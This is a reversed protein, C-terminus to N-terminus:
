PASPAASADGAAESAKSPFTSRPKDWSKLGLYYESVPKWDQNIPYGDTLSKVYEENGLYLDGGYKAKLRSFEEQEQPLFAAILRKQREDDKKFPSNSALCFFKYMRVYNFASQITKPVVKHEFLWVMFIGGPALHRSVIEFFQFSYLNNSYSTSTRIPDILILDYKEKTRLLFRRGDGIILNVRHDSLEEKIVSIKELNKMLTDNLEVITVKRVDEMKLITRATDGTGYGIVLVNEVKPAFSAAEIAEVQHGYFLGRSGHALGNIFNKLKDKHQYTVIVGDRGEEFHTLIAKGDEKNSDLQFAKPPSHMTQYLQGGSPFVFLSIVLLILAVGIRQIIPYQKGALKSTFLGLLIGVASFSLLTIETGLLPLLLFGTFIGGFVNGAINFFYVAGIHKGEKNPHSLSLFAILPFSAGMFITPVFVFLMPWLVIDLLSYLNGLYYLSGTNFPPHLIASFSARTFVDLFTYKTLYYYGLTTIVVSIGILFQLFFFLGKKDINTHKKLYKSMYFSGLAIGLLYVSLTTSFAYPSAKVLVGVVRFWVIEYGIALFGTVFVLLYAVKGLINDRNIQQEAIEEVEQKLPGTMLYKSLLILAALIFNTTVAIYVANDLGFFTIFIYSAFLAGVAAGITNVFYLLSITDLFNRVWHNFIKTLLPLTIGMLFTPFCLFIFMCLFSILYSSGATNRGLFDLFPLSIVGFCGILLEVV